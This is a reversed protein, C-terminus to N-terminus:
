ISEVGDSGEDHSLRAAITARARSLHSKVTGPAIDLVRAVQEVSMDCEYFLALAQAQRRPLRRVEAWFASTDESMVTAETTPPGLRWLARAEAAARRLFSTAKNATARRLYAEPNSMVPLDEWRTYFKLMVDQVVDEAAERSGTLGWAIGVLRPYERRFLSPFTEVQPLRV